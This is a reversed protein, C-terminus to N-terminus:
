KCRDGVFEPDNRCECVVPTKYRASEEQECKAKAEDPPAKTCYSTREVGGKVAFLCLTKAPKTEAATAGGPALCLLVAVIPIRASQIPGM